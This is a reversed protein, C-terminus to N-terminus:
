NIEFTLTAEGLDSLEILGFGGIFVQVIYVGDELLELEIVGDAIAEVAIVRGDPDIVAIQYEEGGEGTITLEDGDEAEFQVFNSLTEISLAVTVTEGSAVVTPEYQNLRLVYTEEFDEPFSTSTSVIVYYIADDFIYFPTVYLDASGIPTNGGRTEYEDDASNGVDVAQGQGDSELIVQPINGTEAVFTYVVFRTELNLVGEAEDGYTLVAAELNTLTLTFEAEEGAEQFIFYDSGTVAVTYTGDEPAVFATIRAEVDFFDDGFNEELVEGDANAIVLYVLQEEESTVEVTGTFAQGEVADFTFAVIPLDETIAADIPKGIELPTTDLATYDIGDQAMVPVALVLLLGAILLGTWRSFTLLTRM